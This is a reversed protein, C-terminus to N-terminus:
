AAGAQRLPHYPYPGRRQKKFFSTRSSTQLLQRANQAVTARDQKAYFRDYQIENNWFAAFFNYIGSSALEGAEANDDFQAQTSASLTYLGACLLLLCALVAARWKLAPRPATSRPFLYLSLWTLLAAFACAAALYPGVPYSEMVNGIVEQTYVLYDVAIFNFRASFEEWFLHEAVADFLLIFIFVFRVGIDAFKMVKSRPSVHAPLFLDFLVLPILLFTLVAADFWLGIAFLKVTELPSIGVDFSARVLLSARLLTEVTLFIALYPFYRQLRM